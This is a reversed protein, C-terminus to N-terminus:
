SRICGIVIKEIWDFSGSDVIANATDEGQRSNVQSFFLVKEGVAKGFLGDPHSILSVMHSIELIDGPRAGTIATFYPFRHVVEETLKKGVLYVPVVGITMTTEKPIVPEYEAWGKLPRTHAGDAEILIVDTYRRAWRMVAESFGHLKTHIEDGQPKSYVKDDQSQIHVADATVAEDGAYIIGPATMVPHVEQLDKELIVRAGNTPFHMKTSAGVCVRCRQGLWRAMGDILTTKGGSGVVSVVSGRGIGLYYILERMDIVM